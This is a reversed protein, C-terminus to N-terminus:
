FESVPLLLLLLHLLLLLLLNTASLGPVVKDCRTFVPSSILNPAHFRESHHFREFDNKEVFGNDNIISDKIFYV